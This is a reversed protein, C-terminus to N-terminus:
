IAVATKRARYQCKGLTRAATQEIIRLQDRRLGYEDSRASEFAGADEKQDEARDPIPDRPHHQKGHQGCFGGAADVQNSKEKKRGEDPDAQDRDTGRDVADAAIRGDGKIAGRDEEFAAEEPPLPRVSVIEGVDGVDAAGFGVALVILRHVADHNM